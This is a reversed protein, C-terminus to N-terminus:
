PASQTSSTSTIDTVIKKRRVRKIPNSLIEKTIPSSLIEKTSPLDEKIFNLIVEPEKKLKEKKPKKEIPPLTSKIKMVEDYDSSGKRPITYSSKGENFKKLALIWNSM